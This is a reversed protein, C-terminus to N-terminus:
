RQLCQKGTLTRPGQATRYTRLTWDSSALFISCPCPFPYNQCSLLCPHLYGEISCSTFGKIVVDGSTWGSKHEREINVQRITPPSPWVRGLADGIRGLSQATAKACYLDVRCSMPVRLMGLLGALEGTEGVLRLKSLSALQLPTDSTTPSISPLEMELDLALLGPNLSLIEVLRKATPRLDGTAKQPPLSLRLSTM